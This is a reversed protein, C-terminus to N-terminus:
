CRTRTVGGQRSLDVRLWLSRDSVAARWARCVEACRLRADAPLAALVRVVLSHPLSSFTFSQRQRSVGSGGGGENPAFQQAALSAHAGDVVASLTRMRRLLAGASDALAMDVCPSVCAAALADVASEAAALVSRLETGGVAPTSGVERAGPPLAAATSAM